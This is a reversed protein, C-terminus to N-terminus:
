RLWEMALPQSAIVLLHTYSVPEIEYNVEAEGYKKLEAVAQSTYLLCPTRLPSGSPERRATCLGCAVVPAWALECLGPTAEPGTGRRITSVLVLRLRQCRPAQRKYVDLHTYSVAVIGDVTLGAKYQYGKVASDTKVGWIGDM